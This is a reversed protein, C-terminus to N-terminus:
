SQLFGCLSVACVCYLIPPVIEVSCLYLIFYVSQSVKGFFIRFGKFIFVIRALFYLIIAFILTAKITSPYVLLIVTFPFLLLGLLSQTAKFGAIWSSSSEKDGFVYGLLLFLAYQAMYFVASLATLAVVNLFVHGSLSQHLTPVYTSITYFAFFGEMVCTNFILASLIRMDSMTHDDFANSRRRVSFMNTVFNEIYKYGSKYSIIILFLSLLLMSMSGTDYLPGHNYNKPAVGKPVEMVPVESLHTYSSDNSGMVPFGSAYHPAFPAVTDHQATDAATSHAIDNTAPM